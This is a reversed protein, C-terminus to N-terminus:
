EAGDKCASRFLVKSYLEAPENKGLEFFGIRIKGSNFYEIKTFGYKSSSFIKGPEKGTPENENISGSIVQYGKEYELLQLSYDHASAYVLGPHRSLIDSMHDIFEQYNENAM